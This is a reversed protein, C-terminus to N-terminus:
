DRTVLMDGCNLLLVLPNHYSLTTKPSFFHKIIWQWIVGFHLPKCCCCDNIQKTWLDEIQAHDPMIDQKQKMYCWHSLNHLEVPALVDEEWLLWEYSQYIIAIQWSPTWTPCAETPRWGKRHSNRSGGWLIIAPHLSLTNYFYGLSSPLSWCM